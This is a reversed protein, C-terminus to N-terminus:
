RPRSRSARTVPPPSTVASGSSCLRRRVGGRRDRARRHPVHQQDGVGHRHSGPRRRSARRRRDDPEGVRHRHRLRHLGPLLVTWDSGVSVVELLFLGLAVLGLSGSLLLWLPVRAAVKRTLLPVFFVFVTIPLFRLGAGLPSNRDIDQLYISLYPFLAFMGAGICFTALQVGLFAPQRFLSVDLMPREQRIEVVVFAVLLVIGAVLSGVIEGSGWGAANGRLLAFVILFLSASFCVLGAVDTRSANPDRSERVYRIALYIAVAGVPVNVFFIWRWGFSDTILGGLLPGAAVAFGM